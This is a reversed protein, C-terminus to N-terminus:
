RRVSFLSSFFNQAVTRCVGDSQFVNFIQLYINYICVSASSMRHSSMTLSCLEVPHVRTINWCFQKHLCCCIHAKRVTLQQIILFPNCAIALRVRNLGLSVPSQSQRIAVNIVAKLSLIPTSSLRMVSM